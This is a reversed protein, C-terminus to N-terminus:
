KSSKLYQEIEQTLKIIGEEFDKNEVDLEEFESVAQIATMALYDKDGLEQSESGQFLERYQNTKKEIAVAADRYKREDKRKIKLRYFRDGVRLTIILHEDM